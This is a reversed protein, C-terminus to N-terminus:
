LLKEGLDHAQFKHWIGQYKGIATRLASVFVIDKSKKTM